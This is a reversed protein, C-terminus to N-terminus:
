RDRRDTRAHREYHLSQVLRKVGIDWEPFLDVCHLERLGHHGADVQELRVPVIFVRGEPM